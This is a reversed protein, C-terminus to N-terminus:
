LYASLDLFVTHGYAGMESGLAPLLDATGTESPLVAMGKGLGHFGGLGVSVDEAVDWGVKWTLLGSPDLLNVM